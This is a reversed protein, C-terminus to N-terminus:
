PPGTPGSTGSTSGGPPDAVYVDFLAVAGDKKVLVLRYSAASVGLPLKAVVDTPSWSEVSLQTGGLTVLPEHVGLHHGQIFLYTLTSDADAREIVVRNDEDDRRDDDNSASPKAPAGKHGSAFANGALCLPLLAAAIWVWVLRHQRNTSM